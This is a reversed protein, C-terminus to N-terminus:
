SNKSLNRKRIKEVLGRKFAKYESKDCDIQTFLALAYKYNGNIMMDHVNELQYDIFNSVRRRRLDAITPPPIFTKIHRWLDDCGFVRAELEKQKESKELWLTVVM